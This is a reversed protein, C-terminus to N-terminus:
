YKLIWIDVHKTFANVGQVIQFEDYVAEQERSLNRSTASCFM